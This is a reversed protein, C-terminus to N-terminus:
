FGLRTALWLPAPVYGGLVLGLWIVVASLPLWVVIVPWLSPRWRTIAELEPTWRGYEKAVQDELALWAAELRRGAGSLAEQWDRHIDAELVSADRVRAAAIDLADLAAVFREAGSALRAAVARREGASLLRRRAAGRPMRVRAAATTIAEDLAANVRDALRHVAKEWATLWARRSLSELVEDRRDRAAAARAAGALELVSTVLEERVDDLPVWPDALRQPVLLRGLSPGLEPVRLPIPIKLATGV